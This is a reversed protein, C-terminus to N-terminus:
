QLSSALEFKTISAPIRDYLNMIIPLYNRNTEGFVGYWTLFSAQSLLHNDIDSIHNIGDATWVENEQRYLQITGSIVPYGDEYIVTITMPTLTHTIVAGNQTAELSFFPNIPALNAVQLALLQTYTVITTNTFAGAPFTIHVSGDYSTLEGGSASVAIAPTCLIGSDELNYINSLWAVFDPDPPTCVSTTSFYFTLVNLMLFSDPLSGKLMPNHQLYLSLLTSLQGLEAPLSGTLLNNNLSLGFLASLNGLTPPLPGSLQNHSLDLYQLSNLMGFESPISGTLQNHHLRLSKLNALNGVQPPLTGDLHNSSMDMSQLSLLNGFTAPIPGNLGNNRLYLGKLSSLNDLEPPISGTLNNNEIALVELHILNGLTSPLPGSLQTSELILKRLATLNGLEAPIQGSLSNWRLALTRLNKLNGLEPPIQGSLGYSSLSLNVLFSLDSLEPPITGEMNSLGLNANLDLSTVHGVTCDVGYWDCPTNTTLWDNGQYPMSFIWFEGNTSTYYAVLAQCELIPIETVNQCSFDNASGHSSSFFALLSSFLLITIWKELAMMKFEEM